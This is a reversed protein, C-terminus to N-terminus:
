PKVRLWTVWDILYRDRRGKDTVVWIDFIDGKFTESKEVEFLLWEENPLDYHWIAKRMDDFRKNDVRSSQNYLFLFLMLNNWTIKGDNEVLGKNAEFFDDFRTSNYDLKEQRRAQTDSWKLEETLKDAQEQAIKGALRTAAAASTAWKKQADLEAETPMSKSEQSMVLAYADVMEKTIVSWELMSENLFTEANSIQDRIWESM